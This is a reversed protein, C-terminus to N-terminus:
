GPPTSCRRRPRRHPHHPRPPDVMASRRHPSRKATGPHVARAVTIEDTAGTHWRIGIRAKDRDPEPLLTVDAILTRLLRKRDKDSTTPAQWLAPLDAALHELEARDPLPPLTERAAQWPRNPRPSPPSSPRGGPKWLHPRGAPEGTRRRPLGTRRPRRRLPGTRRRARRRPRRPPPPRRGRRRRGARLAVRAPDARGAAARRGRRRRHRRHDLPLDPHRAPRRPALVRLRPARRPPLPHADTQRVLRLRHHGPVAGIGERPPRAGANTRNAALKAENALYDEWSIYGEHHDHICCRGSPAPGSSSARHARQRGPRGPPSCTYRGYVYAGAYGPNNLVGLVRAHTLRGWRLQGAWAGGYARLPFRRGAFAAVVGYASGTAAFAAFVDRVAAQVEADPDIVVAGREDYVYGVPLPTRLEGREAAARKAGQLRGALLHLEAEGM